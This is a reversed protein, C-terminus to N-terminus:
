RSWAEEGEEGAPPAAARGAADKVEAGKRKRGGGSAAYNLRTIAPAAFLGPEQGCAAILARLRDALAATSPIAMDDGAVRLNGEVILDCATRLRLGTELFRRVKWLALAVLLEEPATLTHRPADGAQEPTEAGLRYSRLRAIDISFYATISSAAFETRHFPVHGFGKAADGSPDVRDFKVGGSEVPVVDTAEIFASLARTLRYQGGAIDNRALFIGHLVSNPDYHFAARALRGMDAPRADRVELRDILERKLKGDDAELIYSSNLRHAEQISTTIPAGDSYVAVYPLGRLPAALAAAAADWCVTELRNAMSQASEVVAMGRGSPLTYTAAGLDPFGTPQFRTGQAPRLAADLLLRDHRALHALTSTPTPTSTSTSTM